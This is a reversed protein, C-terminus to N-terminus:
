DSRYAVDDRATHSGLGTTHDIVVRNELPGALTTRTILSGATAEANAEASVATACLICAASVILVASLM